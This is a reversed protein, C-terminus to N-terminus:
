LFLRVIFEEGFEEFDIAKGAKKAEKYVMPLGCGLKDIYRLNEMFRLIVPNISYSVGAKLQEITITNPLKGPSRFEIRNNFLFIRIRSGEISYNRHIAANTILIIKEANSGM